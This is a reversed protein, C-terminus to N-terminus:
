IAMVEVIVRAKKKSKAGPEDKELRKSAVASGKRYRSHVVAETEENNEDMGVTIMFIYSDMQYLCM